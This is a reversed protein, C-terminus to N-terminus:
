PTYDNTKVITLEICSYNVYGYTLTVPNLDVDTITITFPGNYPSFLARPFDDTVLLAAGYQDTDTTYTYVNGTAQDVIKFNYETDAELGLVEIDDSCFPTTEQYCTLCDTADEPNVSPPCTPCLDLDECIDTSIFAATATQGIDDSLGCAQIDDSTNYPQIIVTTPDVTLGTYLIDYQTYETFVTTTIIFQGGFGSSVVYFEELAAFIVPLGGVYGSSGGAAIQNYTNYGAQPGIFTYSIPVKLQARYELAM